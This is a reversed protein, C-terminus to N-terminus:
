SFFRVRSFVLALIRKRSRAKPKIKRLKKIEQQSENYADIFALIIERTLESISMDLEEAIRDLEIM